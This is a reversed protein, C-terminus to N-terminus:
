RTGVLEADLIERWVDASHAGALLKGNIFFAPTGYIRLAQAEAFNRDINPTQSGDAICAAIQAAELGVEQAAAEVRALAGSESGYWVRPETFLADHMPWYQGQTGACEAAQAALAGHQSTVPLDKYVYYVLGTDIYETKIAGFTLAHYRGCFECGFDAFEVVTIPANPDGLTAYPEAAINLQAMSATVPGDATEIVAPMASPQPAATPVVTQATPLAIAAITAQPTAALIPTVSPLPAPAAEPPRVPAPAASCASLLLILAIFLWSRILPYEM